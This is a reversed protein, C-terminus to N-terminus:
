GLRLWLLCIGIGIIEASLQRTIVLTGPMGAIQHIDIWRQFSRPPRIRFLVIGKGIAHDRIQLREYLCAIWVILSVFLPKRHVPWSLIHIKIRYFVSHFLDRYKMQDSLRQKSFVHSHLLDITKFSKKWSYLYKWYPKSCEPISTDGNKNGYDFFDPM